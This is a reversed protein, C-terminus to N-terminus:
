QLNGGLPELMKVAVMSVASSKDTSLTTLSSQLVGQLQDLITQKLVTNPVDIRWADTIMGENVLNLVISSPEDGLLVELTHKDKDYSLFKIPINIDDITNEFSASYTDEWGEKFHESAAGFMDESTDKVHEDMRQRDEKATWRIFEDLDGRSASKIVGTIAKRASDQIANPVTSLVAGVTTVNEASALGGLLKCTLILSLFSKTGKKM